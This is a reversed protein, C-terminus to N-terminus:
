HYLSRDIVALLTDSAVPKPLCESFVHSSSQARFEYGSVAVFYCGAFQPDTKLARGVYYGDVSPLVIDCIIVDPLFRRAADLGALGDFAVEVRHGAVRLCAAMSEATDQHDDIILVRRSVPTSAGTALNSM